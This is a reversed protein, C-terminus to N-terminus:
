LPNDLAEVGYLSAQVRGSSVKQGPQEILCFRFPLGERARRDAGDWEATTWHPPAMRVELAIRAKFNPSYQKRTTTM